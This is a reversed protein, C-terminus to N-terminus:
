SSAPGGTGPLTPVDYYRVLTARRHERFPLAMLASVRVQEAARIARLRALARDFDDNIVVYDHQDIFDFDQRAMEYRIDVEAAFETGRNELRRRMTDMDPAMVFIGVTEAPYYRRLNLFGEPVYDFVMDRGEDIANRIPAHLTGFYEGYPNIWQVFDGREIMALFAERSVHEYNELKERPERTTVSTTYGLDPESQRWAEVLSTKGVGGPGSVVFLRGRARLHVGDSRTTSPSSGSGDQPM